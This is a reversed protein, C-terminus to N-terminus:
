QGLGGVCMDGLTGLRGGVDWRGWAKKGCM